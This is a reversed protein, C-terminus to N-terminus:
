EKKRFAALVDRQTLIGVLHEPENKDVVPIFDVDKFTFRQLADDLTTDTTVTVKPPIALDKAVILHRITEDYLSDRIEQFAILGIFNGKDSIVPFQNYRSHEIIKLIQDFPTDEPIKEVQTRMVHKVRLPGEEQTVERPFLGFIQRLRTAIFERFSFPGKKYIINILKVEGAKIIVWRLLIPGLFEFIIVSFLITSTIAPGNVPDEKAVMFCLGIAIGAQSLMGIGGYHSVSEPAQVRRSGIYIGLLKGAIRGGIYGLGIKGVLPILDLHLSAGALVFFIMYFPLDIIKINEILSKYERSLNAVASGLTLNILLPSLHFFLGIEIGMVITAIILTLVEAKKHLYNEGLIVILGLCFGIILSGVVECFPLVFAQNFSFTVTSGDVIKTLPFILRFLILCVLNNIGVLILIHSTVPGESDFERLVLLTAAPATAIGIIGLLLAFSLPKGLCSVLFTIFLFTFSIELFSITLIRRGMKRFRSIKFEGGISFVILGLAVEYIFRLKDIDNHTILEIGFPGLLVGLILYGTVKPVHFYHIIYGTLLSLALSLGLINSIYFPDAM